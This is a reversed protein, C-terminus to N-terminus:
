REIPRPLACFLLFLVELFLAVALPLARCPPVLFRLAFFVLAGLLAEFFRAMLFRLEAYAQRIRTLACKAEELVIILKESARSNGDLLKM